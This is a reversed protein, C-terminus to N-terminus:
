LWKDLAKWLLLLGGTFTVLTGVEQAVDGTTTSKTVKFGCVNCHITEKLYMSSEAKKLTGSRGCSPCDKM